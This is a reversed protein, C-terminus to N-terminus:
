ISTLVPYQAPAWLQAFFASTIWSMRRLKTIHNQQATNLGPVMTTSPVVVTTTANGTDTASLGSGTATRLYFEAKLYELNLAFNLYDTDGLTVPVSHTHPVTDFQWRM